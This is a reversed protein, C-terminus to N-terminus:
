EVNGERDADLIPYLIRRIFMEANVDDKAIDQLSKLLAGKYTTKATKEPASSGSIKNIETTFYDYTSLSEAIYKVSNPIPGFKGDYYDEVMRRVSGPNDRNLAEKEWEAIDM